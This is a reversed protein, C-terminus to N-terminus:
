SNTRDPSWTKDPSVDTRVVNQGTRLIDKSLTTQKDKIEQVMNLIDQSQKGSASAQWISFIALGVSLFSLIISATNIYGQFGSIDTNPFFTPAILNVTLSIITIIILFLIVSYTTWQITTKLKQAM